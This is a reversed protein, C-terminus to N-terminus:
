KLAWVVRRTTRHPEGDPKNLALSARRPHDLVALVPM